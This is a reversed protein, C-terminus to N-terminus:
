NGMSLLESTREEGEKEQKRRRDSFVNPVEELLKQQWPRIQNAHVCFESSLQAM